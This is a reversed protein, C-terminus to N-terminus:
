GYAAAESKNLHLTPTRTHPFRLIPAPPPNRHLVTIPGGTHTDFRAAIEVAQEATAGAAMAGMALQYGTGLAYIDAPCTWCGHEGWALPQGTPPVVLGNGEDTGHFPSEGDLGDAVWERFRLCLARSGAAGVLLPGVRWIKAGMTERLGNATSLSDAALTTGDWAVTTM